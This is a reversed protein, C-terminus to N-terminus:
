PHPIRGTWRSVNLNGLERVLAAADQEMPPRLTLRATTLTTM